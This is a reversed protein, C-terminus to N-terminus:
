CKILFPLHFNLNWHRRDISGIERDILFHLFENSLWQRTWNIRSEIRDISFLIRNFSLFERDISVIFFKMMSNRGSEISGRNRKSWDFLVNSWDFPIRSWDFSAYSFKEFIKLLRKQYNKGNEMLFVKSKIFSSKYIM